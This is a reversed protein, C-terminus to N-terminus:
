FVCSIAEFLEAPYYSGTFICMENTDASEGFSLPFATDNQYDCDVQIETGARLRRPPEFRWPVPEEWDNTEFLLQGDSDRATFYVGRKHMHSSATFLNVDKEILCTNTAHGPSFPPVDISTNNIFIHSALAQVAEPDDARVTVAIEAHVTDPSANLYHVQLRL